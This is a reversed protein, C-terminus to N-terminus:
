AKSELQADIWARALEVTEFAKAPLGNEVYCQLYLATMLYAGEVDPGMVLAYAVPNRGSQVLSKINRKLLTLASLSTLASTQFKVIAAWKGTRALQDLVDVTQEPLANIFEPDFPGTATCILVRGDMALQLRGPLSRKSGDDGDMSGATLAM